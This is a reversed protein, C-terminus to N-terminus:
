IFLIGSIKICLCVSTLADLYTVISNFSNSCSIKSASHFFASLSYSNNKSILSLSKFLKLSIFFSLSLVANISKM